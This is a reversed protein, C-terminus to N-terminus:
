PVRRELGWSLYSAAGIVLVGAITLTWRIIIERQKKEKWGGESLFFGLLVGAGLPQIMLMAKSRLLFSLLEFGACLWVAKNDFKMILYAYGAIALIAATSTWQILGVSYTNLLFIAGCLVVASITEYGKTCISLISEFIAVYSIAHFLILCLGYWPIGDAIRYLLALPASLLYGVLQTYASPTHTITGSLTEAIIRDDNTEFFIGMRWNAAWMAVAALIVAMMLWYSKKMGKM